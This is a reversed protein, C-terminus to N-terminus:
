QVTGLYREISYIDLKGAPALADMTKRLRSAYVFEDDLEDLAAAISEASPAASPFLAPSSDQLSGQPAVVLSLVGEALLDVSVTSPCTLVWHVTTASSIIPLCHPLEEYGLAAAERRLDAAIPAPLDSIVPHPKWLLSSAKAGILRAASAVVRLLNMEAELGHAAYDPNMPHALNTLLLIGEAGRSPMNHPSPQAFCAGYCNLQEYRLADYGCRFLALNSIGAFNPGTALGHVAHVTQAGNAQMAKEIATTDATGTHGFIVTRPKLGSSTWWRSSVAGLFVRFAIAVQERFAPRLPRNSTEVLGDCLIQPLENLAQIAARVSIPCVVPPLACGLKASWISSVRGPALRPRGLLLIMDPMQEPKLQELVHRTRNSWEGHLALMLGTYAPLQVKRSHRAVLGMISLLALMTACVFMMRDVVQQLKQGRVIFGRFALASRTARVSGPNAPLDPLVRTRNTCAEAVIEAAGLSSETSAPMAKIYEMAWGTTSQGLQGARLWSLQRGRSAAEQLGTSSPKGSVACVKRRKGSGAVQLVPM